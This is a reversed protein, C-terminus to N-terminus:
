GEEEVQERVFERIRATVRSKAQYVADLSLGYAAAVDAAPRRDLAVAEFVRMTEPRFERRAKATALRLHYRRWEATWAEEAASDVAAGGGPDLEETPHALADRGGRRLKIVARVAATKLWGRFSGRAPDYAFTPMARHAAALVDQAVDEADAPQLGRRRAFAFLLERYRDDFERWAEADAGDRLRALLSLHTSVDRM